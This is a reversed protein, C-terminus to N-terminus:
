VKSMGPIDPPFTDITAIQLFNTPSDESSPNGGVLVVLDGPLVFQRSVLAEHVQRVVIRLDDTHERTWVPTVGWILNLRRYVIESPTLALIPAKPREHAMVHATRGSVTFAVIAKIPLAEVIARTAESIAQPVEPEPAISLDRDHNSHRGTEEAAEIIKAMTKVTEVPYFGTATERSLMVADTGDFIANAVDSAEARTPRPNEAMSDLMQTATIVPLGADNAAEILMKQVPPVQETPIEVGLDGRAVMVADAYKLIGPLEDLAEPKEIKAIVPTDEGVEAIREKMCIINSARRVFSLAIYDVKHELGFELDATDKATLSPVSINVGPLNIGQKERLEGGHIVETNVETTNASVVRLEILGDSLLIRDGVVVDKPLAKYTTHVRENTGETPEITITFVQGAELHVPTGDVLTGTRIKPGQLDQIITLPRDMDSAIQRLLAINRAHYEHTGHSFNLRAVDM